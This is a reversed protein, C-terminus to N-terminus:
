GTVLDGLATILPQLQDEYKKWRRASTAYLPRRVQTVSATHVPQKNEHFRLCREDWPLGCFELLRRTEGEQDAVMNEYVVTHFEGPLIEQWHSMIRAYGRSYRGIEAMDYAWPIHVHFITQWISLGVDVPDRACHIIKAGPLALRILGIYQYNFLMKDVLFGRGTRHRRTAALYKGAIDNLLHPSMQAALQEASATRRRSLTELPAPDEPLSNPFAPTEGASDTDPHSSLIREVLTSGSRPMGVIFVLGTGALGAKAAGTKPASRDSPRHKEIFGRDLCRLIESGSKELKAIDFEPYTIRKLKNGEAFHAFARAPENRDLHAQGLAFELHIRDEHPLAAAKDKLGLLQALRPDEPLFKGLKQLHLYADTCEPDKALAQEWAQRARAEDGAANYISALKSLAAGPLDLQQAQEALALAENMMGQDSKVDALLTLALPSKPYRRLFRTLCQEAEGTFGNQQCLFGLNYLAAPHDPERSLIGKYIDAAASEKGEDQLREATAIAAATLSAAAGKTAKPSAKAARRQKRNM